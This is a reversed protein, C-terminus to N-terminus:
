RGARGPLVADIWVPFHDSPFGDAGGPPERVMGAEIVRWEASPLVYDVRLRFRATDDDDLREIPTGSRPVHEGAVREHGLLFAGIPDGMARGEDPDANLDGLIAFPVGPEIGGAAGADDVIWGAGSLYEHWFRIEDHNRRANRREDGDFAPPTPHSCLVRFRQGGPTVIPVDWHSKSSLRFRDGAEGAYWPEGPAGPVSPMLAGPMASWRLEQFTRVGAAEIVLPEAVLLAMAYQGPFTGFGWCDNGYARGASTQRAPSGDPDPHDITPWDPTVVGDRNLDFGSHVGTNSPAVFVRYRKHGAAHVYRDVFARANADSQRGATEDGPHDSSMENLLIVDPSLGRIVEGLARLRPHDDRALDISRVDELNFTAIRLAGPEEGLTGRAGGLLVLAGVLLRLTGRITSAPM